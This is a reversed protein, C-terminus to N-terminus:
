TTSPSTSLATATPAELGEGTLLMRADAPTIRRRLVGDQAASVAATEESVVFVLADSEESLGIAARHRTGLSKDDVPSQTLPLICGAGIIEDGRILVAGDHLPSYPSFITALLDASVRARVPSGGEAYEELGGEREVAIIAGTGNRSLRELAEVIEDVVAPRTDAALVRLIRSQGLRALAGRLEPQLVVIAAFAGYTFVLGLLYTITSLKLLFAAAYIAALLLVGLVIHLARTGTLFRLVRYLLVAVIAVEFADTWGFRLAELGTIM